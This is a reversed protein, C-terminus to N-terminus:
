KRPVNRATLEATVRLKSYQISYGNVTPAKCKSKLTGGVGSAGLEDFHLSGAHSVKGLALLHDSAASPQEDELKQPGYGKQNFFFSYSVAKPVNAYIIGFELNCTSTRWWTFSAFRATM